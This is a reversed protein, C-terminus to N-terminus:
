KLRRDILDKLEALEVDTMCATMWLLDVKPISREAKRPSWKGKGKKKSKHTTVAPLNSMPPLAAPTVGQPLFKGNHDRQPAQYPTYKHTSAKELIDGFEVPLDTLALDEVSAGEFVDEITLLQELKGVKARAV